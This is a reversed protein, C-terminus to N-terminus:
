AVDFIAKVVAEVDVVGGDLELMHFAFDRMPAHNRHALAFAFVVVAVSEGM